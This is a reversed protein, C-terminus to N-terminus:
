FNNPSGTVAINRRCYHSTQSEDTTFQASYYVQLPEIRTVFRDAQQETYAAQATPRVTELVVLRRWPLSSSPHRWPWWSSPTQSPRHRHTIATPTSETRTRIWWLCMRSNLRHWPVIWSPRPLSRLGLTWSDDRVVNQVALCGRLRLYYPWMPFM